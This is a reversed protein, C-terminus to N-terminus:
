CPVCVLMGDVTHQDYQGNDCTNKCEWQEDEFVWTPVQGSPCDLHPESVCRRYNGYAGGYTVVLACDTCEWTQKSTFQPSQGPPCAPPPDACVLTGAPPLQPSPTPAPGPTGPAPAGGAGAAGVGTAGVGGAGSPAGIGGGFGGGTVMPPAEIAVQGPACNAPGCTVTMATLPGGDAPATMTGGGGGSPAPRDSSIAGAAAEGGTAVGSAGPQPIFRNTYIAVDSGECTIPQDASRVQHSGCAFLTTILFLAATRM